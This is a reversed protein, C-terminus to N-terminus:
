DNFRVAFARQQKKSGGPAPSGSLQRCYIRRGSVLGMMRTFLVACSMAALTTFAAQGYGSVGASRMLLGGVVGGSIGMVVDMSPGYGKGERNRGTLWGTIWGVCICLLLNM